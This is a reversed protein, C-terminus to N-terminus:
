AKDAWISIVGKFGMVIYGDPTSQLSWASESPITIENTKEDIKVTALKSNHVVVQAINKGPLVVTYAVYNKGINQEHIVIPLKKVDYKPIM